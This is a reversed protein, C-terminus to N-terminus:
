SPNQGIEISPEGEKTEKISERSAEISLLNTLEELTMLMGDPKERILRDIRESKSPLVIVRLGSSRAAKLDSLKACFFIAEEPKIQTSELPARFRDKIPEGIHERPFVDTVLNKLGKNELFKNTPKVGLESMIAIRLNISKVSELGNKVGFNLQFKDIQGLEIEDLLASLKGSLAEYEESSMSERIQTIQSFVDGSMSKSGPVNERLFKSAEQYSIEIPSLVNLSFLLLRTKM